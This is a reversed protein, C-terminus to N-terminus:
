APTTAAQASSDDAVPLRLTFTSGVGPESAVLVDGGQLRALERCLYLGIGIGEIRSTRSRGLRAFPQFLRTLGQEDIGIGRDTVAIDVDRTRVRVSVTVAGGDPSYKVANSILNRMIIAVQRPDAHVRAKRRQRVVISRLDSAPTDFEAVVDAVM